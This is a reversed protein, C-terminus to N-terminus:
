VKLSKVGTPAPAESALNKAKPKLPADAALTYRLRITRARMFTDRTAGAKRIKFRGNAADEALVTLTVGTTAKPKWTQGPRVADANPTPNDIENKGM